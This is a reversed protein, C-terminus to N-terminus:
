VQTRVIGHMRADEIDGEGLGQATGDLVKEWLLDRVKERQEHAVGTVNRARGM